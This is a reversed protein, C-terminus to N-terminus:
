KVYEFNGEKNKELRHIDWRRGKGGKELKQAIICREGDTRVNISGYVTVNREKLKEIKEQKKDILDLRKQPDTETELALDIERIEAVTEREDERHSRALETSFILPRDGRSNVGVAGLTAPNPHSYSEEDGSSIITAATNICKLFLSTFDASGHHCAKAIDAQFIPRATKLFDEETNSAGFRLSNGTYKKMLFREASSNLDGGMFINIDKYNLKLIISHGNKTKARNGLKRLAKKGNVQETFPGLIKINLEKDKEFGKLYDDEASPMQIENKIKNNDLMRKMLLAYKKDHQSRTPHKWNPEHALFDLVKQKTDFLETYYIPDPDVDIIEGFDSPKVNKQYEMLGNHLYNEFCVNEVGALYHFGGYHDADGHTAIGYKFTWKTKFDNYRWKLYRLMNDGFGTDIIFHEDDPTVVLAGDGQGVDVFVIELVREDLLMDKHMWGTEGRVRVQVFDGDTKKPKLVGVWDGFLIQHIKADGKHGNDDEFLHVFPYNAYKYGEYEFLPM